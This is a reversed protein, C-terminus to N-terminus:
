FLRMQRPDSPPDTKSRKLWSRVTVDTAHLRRAIEAVPLGQSRLVAAIWPKATPVRRPLLEEALALAKDRGVLGAVRNRAQPSAAIYIEAGGFTMLFEVALDLGLVRVYPAVHAPPPPIPAATM